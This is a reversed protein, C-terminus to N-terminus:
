RSWPTSGTAPRAPCEDRVSSGSMWAASVPQDLAAFRSTLPELDTRLRGDGNKEATTSM